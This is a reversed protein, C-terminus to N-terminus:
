LMDVVIRGRQRGALIKDIEPSLEELTCNTRLENLQSFKWENALMNWIKYRLDINTESSDIGLLGVGRLIFPFVTTSLEPSDVLGTSAVAGGRKTSKLLNSLTSGGVTDVAGAWREKLLSKKSEIKIEDRNIIEM